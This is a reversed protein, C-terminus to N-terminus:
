AAVATIVGPTVVPFDVETAAVINFYNTFINLAVHAVIESIEADGYGAARVAALAEDSVEGKQVVVTQAFRLVAEVAPDDSQARRNRSIVPETLGAMKGLTSHASLCYGCRNAEAVALAIQEGLQGSLKGAALAGAFRLYGDLVAPSSAMTRMMLPAFGLKAEVGDLLQKAKGTATTQDVAQIRQM